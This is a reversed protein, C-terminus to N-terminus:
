DEDPEITLACDAPRGDADFSMAVALAGDKAVGEGAAVHKVGKLSRGDKELFYMFGEAELRAEVQSRDPAACVLESLRTQEAELPSPPAAGCAFAVLWLGMAAPGVFRNKAM